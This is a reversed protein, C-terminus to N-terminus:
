CDRKINGPKNDNFTKKGLTAKKTLRKRGQSSVNKQESKSITTDDSKSVGKLIEEIKDAYAERIATERDTLAENTRIKRAIAKVTAHHVKGTEVFKEWAADKIKKVAEKALKESEEKTRDNGTDMSVAREKKELDEIEKEYREIAAEISPYERVKWSSNPYWYTAVEDGEFNKILGTDITKNMRSMIEQKAKSAKEYSKQNKLPPLPSLYTQIRRGGESAKNQFLPGEKTGNTSVVKQNILFDKYGNLNNLLNISIQRRKTDKLFTVLSDFENQMSRNGPTIRKGGYILHEGSFYLESTLDKTEESVYVFMNILDNIVPDEGLLELEPGMEKEIREKLTPRTDSLLSNLKLIKSKNGDQDTIPVAVDRLIEALVEAQAQTNKALNLRLPFIKGDAKKVKLFVGGRYPMLTGDDGQGVNVVKGYFDQDLQKLEDMFMGDDNTFMLDVDNVSNIQQLDLLSNEAALSDTGPDTVLEGGSTFKVETVTSEGAKLRDIIIKRQAAYNNRYREHAIPTASDKPKEPIYTFINKKESHVVKIPLKDYVEQPIAGEVSQEFLDIIELATKNTSYVNDSVIYEFKEGVKSATNEVWRQYKDTGKVKDLLPVSRSSRVQHETFKDDDKAFKESTDVEENWNVDEINDKIQNRKQNDVTKPNANKQAERASAYAQAKEAAEKAAQKKKEEQIKDLKAKLKKTIDAKEEKTFIDNGAVDNIAETIDKEKQLSNIHNQVKVKEFAEQGEPTKTYKLEENNYAIKDEITYQLDKLTAIDDKIIDYADQALKNTESRNDAIERDTASMKTKAKEAAKIEKNVIKLKAENQAIVGDLFKKQQASKIKSKQTKLNKIRNHLADKRESREWSERLDNSPRTVWTEDISKKVQEIDKLVDSRKKAWRKNDIELMSLKAAVDPSYKNRNKLYLSRMDNARKIIDPTYEKALETDFENGTVEQYNAKDQDSMNQMSNITEIFQDYKDNELAEATMHMMANDIIDKRTDTLGDQDAKALEQQMAAFQQARAKMRDNYIAGINEEFEKRTKSKFAQNIGKGAAQFVNGGLGGFFASTKLEDSSYAERMKEDFEEQTILGSKLDSSLKARESIVFQYAEEFGESAFTGVAASVNQQWPKLGATIGRQSANTLANEMKRTVPNFVKGLALYQPIDQVLMAWGQKWNTAAAESADLTAEEKTFLKGTEPNIQTLRQAKLDEFTGHAEMWNEINRSIIAQSLGETMWKAKVGMNEAIDLSKNITGLGRSLGKGLFGLTRTAASSPILMSLTSAVSVSNKFWWGSDGMSNWFGEEREPNEYIRTNEEVGERISQGFDTLFNGWETEEGQILDVISGVDLLYGLGEITGGVIEGVVAQAIANAAQDYWPQEEARQIDLNHLTDFPTNTDFQSSGLDTMGGVELPGGFLVKGPNLGNNDFDPVSYEQSGVPKKPNNVLDTNDFNVM